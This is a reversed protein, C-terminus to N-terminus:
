SSGLVLSLSSYVFIASPQETPLRPVFSMLNRRDKCSCINRRKRVSNLIVSRGVGFTRKIFVSLNAGGKVEQINKLFPSLWILAFVVSYIAKWLSFIHNATSNFITSRLQDKKFFLEYFYNCNASCLTLMIDVNGIIKFLVKEQFFSRSFVIFLGTTFLFDTFSHWLISVLERALFVSCVLDLCFTRAPGLHRGFRPIAHCVSHNSICSRYM